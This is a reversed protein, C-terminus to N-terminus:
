LYHKPMMPMTGMCWYNEIARRVYRPEVGALYCVEFFSRGGVWSKANHKYPNKDFDDKKTEKISTADVVAQYLVALWLVREPVSLTDSLM